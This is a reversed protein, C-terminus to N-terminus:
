AYQSVILKRPKFIYIAYYILGGLCVLQITSLGFSFTYHPKIFDLAFRFFIYAIMFVKFRGGAVLTYRKELQILGIWLMLLFVIEYLTVPHRLLDDGLNMGTFFTTQIGYTEEYVGMGFCGIRGIILALIMPYTFLDGSSHKEGIIKKVLEVGFLGGLFGGIVTKNTYFYILPNAAKVLEAPNELGGVLRSGILAGFIAGIIIWLRQSSEIQDGKGKRLYLFYRFGIFMGLPELLAHLLIKISGIEVTIPFHM